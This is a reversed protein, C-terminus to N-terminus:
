SASSKSMTAYRELTQAISQELPTASIGFRETFKRSDVVFDNEFQYMMEISERAAPIFLGGVRLMGRGMSKVKAPKGAIRYALEAFQRQTVADANPVHWVQGFADDHRGLTVLAKGFDNVFTYTHKKDPNGMVACAKGEAIPRFFREGASSNRVTPGFFDAGRAIAVELVGGRHLQKLKQALEARITGKRSVPADPLGEHIPGDVKGYMYLNEGVVLKAGAAVAGAVVNDQLQGFLDWRHYAPAACHYIVSAGKLAQVAQVGDMLDAKLVQVGSPVAANGSSSIMTVKEGNNVLENMVSIGLPGTGLVINM